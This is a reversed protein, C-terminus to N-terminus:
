ISSRQWRIKGCEEHRVACHPSHHVAYDLTILSCLRAYFGFTMVSLFQFECPACRGFERSVCFKM